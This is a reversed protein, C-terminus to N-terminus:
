VVKKKLTGASPIVFSVPDGGPPVYIRSLKEDTSNYKLIIGADIDVFYLCKQLASWHPGEGFTVPETVPEIKV